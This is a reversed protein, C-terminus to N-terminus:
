KVPNIPLPSIIFTGDNTVHFYYQDATLIHDLGLESQVKVEGKRDKTLYGTLANNAIIQYAVLATGFHM